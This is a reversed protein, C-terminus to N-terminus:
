RDWVNASDRERYPEFVISDCYFKKFEGFELMGSLSTNDSNKRDTPDQKASLM